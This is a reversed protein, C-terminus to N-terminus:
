TFPLHAGPGSALRRIVCSTAHSVGVSVLAGILSVGLVEVARPARLGMAAYVELCLVAGFVGQLIDPLLVDRPHRHLLHGGAWGVGGALCAVAILLLPSLGMAADMRSTAPQM